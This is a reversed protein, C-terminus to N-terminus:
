TYKSQIRARLMTRKMFLSNTGHPFESMPFYSLLPLSRCRQARQAVCVRNVHLRCIQHVSDKEIGFITEDASGIEGADDKFEIEMSKVKM